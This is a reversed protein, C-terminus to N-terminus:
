RNLCAQVHLKLFGCVPRQVIPKAPNIPAAAKAFGPTVHDGFLFRDVREFVWSPISRHRDAIDHGREDGADLARGNLQTGPRQVHRDVLFAEGPCALRAGSLQNMGSVEDFRPEDRGVRRRIHRGSRELLRRKDFAGHERDIVARTLNAREDTAVAEVAALEIARHLGVALDARRELRDHVGGGDIAAVRRGADDHVRRRTKGAGGARGDVRRHIVVLLEFAGDREAVGEFFGAINRSYPHHLLQARGM